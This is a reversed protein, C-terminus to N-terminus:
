LDLVGEVAKLARAKARLVKEAEARLADGQSAIKRAILDERTLVETGGDRNKLTVTRTGDANKTFKINNAKLITNVKDWALTAIEAEVPDLAGTAGPARVGLTGNAIKGALEQRVEAVKASLEEATPEADPAGDASPHAKAYGSKYSAIRSSAENGLVHNLGRSILADRSAVPLTDIDFEYGYSTINTM